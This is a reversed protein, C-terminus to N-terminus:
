PSPVHLEVVKGGDIPICTGTIYSSEDSALFLALAAVEAPEGFRRLPVLGAIKQGYSTGPGAFGALTAPTNIVGPAIVNARVNHPGGEVATQRTFQILAAKAAGYAALGGMALLGGVSAINIISGGRREVMVRLAARTSAFAADVNVQFDKRFAAVDMDAIAAYTVSPANNVLVDLGRGAATDSVFRELREHDAVDLAATSVQAGRARLASALAELRDATRACLAVHAGEEAFRTAIAAGIGQSAGTVLAVKGRLHM